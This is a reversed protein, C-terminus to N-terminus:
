EESTGELPVLHRPARNLEVTKLLKNNRGRKLGKLKGQVVKVKVSRVNGDRGPKTDVVLGMKWTGRPQKENQVLVVEGVVPERIKSGVKRRSHIERLNALYEGQWRNWFYTKLKELYRLRGSCLQPEKGDVKLDYMPPVQVLSRGHMLMAPSVPEAEDGSDHVTTIPRSNILASVEYLVTTYEEFTLVANGLVRHLSRKVTQVCREIYGGWWPARELYRVWTIRHDQLYKQMKPSKSMIILEKQSRKFGKANDSRLVRPLGCKAFFRRLGLMVNEVSLGTIFELEVARTTACTLLLIHGKKRTKGVKYLIPGATDVGTYEFPYSSNVRFDPLPPPAIIPYPKATVRRCLVCKNSVSRVKSRGQPVWFSKRVHVLLEGVGAHNLLRHLNAIYLWTFRSHKPLLIPNRNDYPSFEDQVRSSYRLLGDSDKFLRLSRAVSSVTAVSKGLYRGEPCKKVENPYFVLQEKRVWYQVSLNHLEMFSPDSLGFVKGCKMAIFKLVISTVRIVKGFCDYKSLDLITIPDERFVVKVSKKIEVLCDPTPQTVNVKEGCAITEDFLFSPGHWWIEKSVLDPGSIPRTAVDAPNRESRVYNWDASKTLSHIEVVRNLVFTSWQRNDSKVWHLVNQSDTYYMVKDFKLGTHTSIVKSSLRALLGAGLLELRPLSHAALPAIRNKAFVLNVRTDLGYVCKVYFCAAYASESADAFGHLEVRDYEPLTIQRPLCVSALDSLQGKWVEWKVAMEEPLKGRWGVKSKCIQQFLLKPLVIFPQVLGLPDWVSATLSLLNKKTPECSAAEIVRPINIFLSDEVPKWLLGLVSVVDDKVSGWLSRLEESNSNWKHLRMGIKQLSLEVTEKLELASSIDRAGSLFDDVYLSSLILEKLEPNSEFEKGFHFRLVANLLFSSVIVGFPVRAFRYEVIEDAESWLFRFADRDAPHLGVCLYAMEIDGVMAVNNLRFRMLAESLDTLLSPGGHIVENLSLAGSHAACSADFVVRIKDSGRKTVHHHPMYFQIQHTDDNTGILATNTDLTQPEPQPNVFVSEPQPPVREIIGRELYDALISNYKTKLDENGVKNLKQKTVNFRILAQNYNTPLYAKIEEKWPICVRIRGQAYEVHDNFHAMVPSVETEKIGLTDLDWLKHMIRGLEEDSDFDTVRKIFYTRILHASIEGRTRAGSLPGSIVWGLETELLRPGFGTREVRGKMISWLYDMGILIDVSLAKCQTAKPDALHYSSLQRLEHEALPYSPLAGCLNSMSLLQVPISQHPYFSSVINLSVLQSKISKTRESAFTGINITQEDLPICGLKQSLETTCYSDSSGRDIFIRARCWKGNDPNEVIVWATEMFTPGAAKPLAMTNIRPRYDPRQGGKNESGFCISPSHKGKGCNCMSERPCDRLIHGNELCNFCCRETRLIDRCGNANPRDRCTHPKHPPNSKKCFICPKNNDSIPPKPTNSWNKGGSGRGRGGSAQAVHASRRGGYNTRGHGINGGHSGRGMSDGGLNTGRPVGQYYSSVEERAVIFRECETLLRDVTRERKPVERAIDYMLREPLLVMIADVLTEHDTNADPDEEKILYIHQRVHQILNLIDQSTNCKRWNEISKLKGWLERIEGERPKYQLRLTNLILELNEPIPDIHRILGEAEGKIGLRLYTVRESDSCHPGVLDEFMRLFIRLDRSGNPGGTFTPFPAKPLKTRPTDARGGPAGYIQGPSEPMRRTSDFRSSASHFEGPIHDIEHRRLKSEANEILGRQSAMYDAAQDVLSDTVEPHTILESIVSDLNELRIELYRIVGKLKNSNLADLPQTQLEVIQETFRRIYSKHGKIMNKLTKISKPEAMALGLCLLGIFITILQYPFM